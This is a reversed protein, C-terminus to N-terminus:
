RVVTGTILSGVKVQDPHSIGRLTLGCQNPDAFGKRIWEVASITVTRVDRDGDHLMAPGIDPLRSCPGVLVLGRSDAWISDMVSMAFPRTIPKPEESIDGVATRCRCLPCVDDDECTCGYSDAEMVALWDRAITALCDRAAVLQEDVIKKVRGDDWRIPRLMQEMDNARAEWFAAERAPFAGPDPTTCMCEPSPLQCGMCRPVCRQYRDRAVEAKVLADLIPEMIALMRDAEKRDSDQEAESLEAYPTDMQRQWREAWREPIMPASGPIPRMTRSFLYEMWGTWSRHAYDALAERIATLDTEAM